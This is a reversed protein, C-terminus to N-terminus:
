FSEDIRQIDPLNLQKDDVDEHLERYRQERWRQLAEAYHDEYADVLGLLLQLLDAVHEDSLTPMDEFIPMSGRTQHDGHM